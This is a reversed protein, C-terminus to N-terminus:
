DGDDEVPEWPSLSAPSPAGLWELGLAVRIPDYAIRDRETEAIAVIEDRGDSLGRLLTSVSGDSLGFVAIIRPMPGATARDVAKRVRKEIQELKPSHPPRVPVAPHGDPEDEGEVYVRPLRYQREGTGPWWRTGRDGLGYRQRRLSDQDLSLLSAVDQRSWGLAEKVILLYGALADLRQRLPVTGPRRQWLPLVGSWFGFHVEDSWAEAHFVCMPGRM